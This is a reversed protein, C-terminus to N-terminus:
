ASYSAKPPLIGAVTHACKQLQVAAAVQCALPGLTWMHSVIVHNVNSNHWYCHSKASQKYAILMIHLTAMCLDLVGDQVIRTSGRFSSPVTLERKLSSRLSNRRYYWRVIGRQLRWCRATLASKSPDLLIGLTATM